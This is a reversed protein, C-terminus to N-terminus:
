LLSSVIGAIIWTCCLSIVTSHRVVATSLLFTAVLLPLLVHSGLIQFFLWVALYTPANPGIEQADLGIRGETM